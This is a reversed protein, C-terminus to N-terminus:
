VVWGKDVVGSCVDEGWLSLCDSLCDECYLLM